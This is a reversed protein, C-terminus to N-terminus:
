SMMAQGSLGDQKKQWGGEGAHCGNCLDAALPKAANRPVHISQREKKGKGEDYKVKGGGGKKGNPGHSKKLAHVDTALM